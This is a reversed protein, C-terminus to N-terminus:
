RYGPCVWCILKVHIMKCHCRLLLCRMGTNKQFILALALIQSQVLALSAEPTTTSIGPTIDLVWHESHRKQEDSSAKITIHRTDNALDIFTTGGAGQFEYTLLNAHEADM